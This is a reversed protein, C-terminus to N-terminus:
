WQILINGSDTASLAKSLGPTNAARIHFTPWTSPRLRETEFLYQVFDLTQSLQPFNRGNNQSLERLSTPMRYNILKLSRKHLDPYINFDFQNPHYRGITLVRGLNRVRMLNSQFHLSDGSADILLDVSPVSLTTELASLDKVWRPGHIPDSLNDQKTAGGYEADVGICSEAGALWALDALIQGVLDNSLVLVQEGIELESLYIVPILALAFAWYAMHESIVSADKLKVCSDATLTISPELPALAVVPDGAALGVVKEGIEKVHGVVSCIETQKSIAVTYISEIWVQDPKLAPAFEEREITMTKQSTM